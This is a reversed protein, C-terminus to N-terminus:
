HSFKSTNELSGTNVNFSEYLPLTFYFTSGQNEQTSLGITGGQLKILEAALHLGLGTGPITTKKISETRGFRQFLRSQEQQPIGIGFDQVRVIVEPGAVKVSVIVQNAKPSYKVANSLLNTVVSGTRVKDAFVMADEENVIDIQHSTQTLGFSEVQEKVLSCLNFVEKEMVLKGTTIKSTDLLAAILSSMFGIQENIKKVARKVIPKSEKLERDLIQGYAKIVSIPTRIEHSAVSIFVDKEEMVAKNETLDEFELSFLLNPPQYIRRPKVMLSRAGRQPHLFSIEYNEHFRHEKIAKDLVTRLEALNLGGDIIQFFPKGMLNVKDLSFFEIFQTTANVVEWNSNLIVVSEPYAAVFTQALAREEKLNAEAQVEDSINRMIKSFGIHLGEQNFLPFVLGSGWFRQGGKKVHFREDMGKGERLASGMELAPVQEQLDEPTYLCEASQGIIEDAKYM